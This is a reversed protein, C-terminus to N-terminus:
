VDERTGGSAAGGLGIGKGRGRVLAALAKGVAPIDGLMTIHGRETSVRGGRVASYGAPLMAEKALVVGDGARFLLDDYAGPLPIADRGGVQAAYVTPITKGYIVAMPPYANAEQHDPRHALGARFEKTAALTRSLYEFYRQREVEAASSSPPQAPSPSGAPAAVGPPTTGTTMQPAITRDKLMTVPDHSWKESWSDARARLTNPLFSSLSSAHPRTQQPPPPPLVCPSLRWKVWDNPDYFDVPYEEGTDKDIFCFGDEPLFVFSTRISINVQATLLKENFLVVDGNRFPGLINICRQPTGAYLVGSFLDPRQNVCHRTIIGGLSHSIVLAGRSAAPVGPQNSPLGQLFDQLKRSLLRPSLRWDYGYDWIRLKGTRANECTRLRRFIKRAIDVPGINKLMGSPIMTEETHLEDEDELGLEFNVKRINLGVKVPAWVQQHPPDASRLISGRFGGMIVVDGTLDELVHDLLLAADKPADKPANSPERDLPARPGPSDSSFMGNLSASPWKSAAQIRALSPMKFNPVDPLSDKIATLRMNVMERVDTFQRDDGLSSARSLSHYLISEDSTVRRLTAPRPAQGSSPRPQQQSPGSQSFQLSPSAKPTTASSPSMTGSQPSSPSSSHSFSEEPKPSSSSARDSLSSLFSGPRSSLFHASGAFSPLAKQLRKLADQGASRSRRHRIEGFATGLVNRTHQSRSEKPAPHWPSPLYTEDSAPQPPPVPGSIAPPTTTKAPPTREPSPETEPSQLEPSDDDHDPADFSEPIGLPAGDADQFYGNQPPRRELAAAKEVAPTQCSTLHSAAASIAPQLVAQAGDQDAPFVADEQVDVDTDPGYGGPMQIHLGAPAVHPGPASMTVATVSM